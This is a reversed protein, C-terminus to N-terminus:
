RSPPPAPAPAPEEPTVTVPGDPRVRVQYVGGSRSVVRYDLRQARQHLLVAGCDPAQSAVIADLQQDVWQDHSPPTQCGALLGMLALVAPLLMPGTLGSRGARGSRGAAPVTNAGKWPSM